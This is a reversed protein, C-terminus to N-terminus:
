SSNLWVSQQLKIESWCSDDWNLFSHFKIKLHSATNNSVILSTQNIHLMSEKDENTGFDHM